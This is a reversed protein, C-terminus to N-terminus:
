IEGLKNVFCMQINLGVSENASYENGNGLWESYNLIINVNEDQDMRKWYM